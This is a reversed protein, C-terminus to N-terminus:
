GQGPAAALFSGMTAPLPEGLEPVGDGVRAVCGLARARASIGQPPWARRYLALLQSRAAAIGASNAGRLWRAVAFEALLSSAVFVSRGNRHEALQQGARARVAPSMGLRRAEARVRAGAEEPHTAFGARVHVLAPADAPPWGELLAIGAVVEGRATLLRPTALERYRAAERAAREAAAEHRLALTAAAVAAQQNSRSPREQAAMGPVAVPVPAADAGPPCRWAGASTRDVPPLPPRARDAERRALRNRRRLSKCTGAMGRARLPRQWAFARGTSNARM